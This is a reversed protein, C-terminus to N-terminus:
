RISGAPLPRRAIVATAGRTKPRGDRAPPARVSGAAACTSIPTADVAADVDLAGDPAPADAPIVGADGRSSPGSCGMAVVVVMLWRMERRYRSGMAFDLCLRSRDIM